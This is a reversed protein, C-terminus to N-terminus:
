STPGPPPLEGDGRLERGPDDLAGGRRTEELALRLSEMEQVLGDVDGALLPDTRTAPRCRCRSPGPWWSTSAPTSCASATAPRARRGAGHREASALQAQLAEETREAADGTEGSRQLEALESRSQAVDLGALAQEIQDGRRAIRGSEAVGDRIRDGIVRWGTACRDPSWRRPTASSATRPRSPASCSGGGRSACAPSTPDRGPPHGEPPRRAVRVAWAAAGIGVAALVPLGAVLGVAAGGGALLLASPSTMVEGAKRTFLRDRLSGM